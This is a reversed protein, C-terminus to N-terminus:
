IWGLLEATKDIIANRKRLVKSRSMFLEEAIEEWEYCGDKDWYRMQVIKQQEKDLQDYLKTIVETTRKLRQYLADNIFITARMATSDTITNSKGGGINTDAEQYPYLLEWERYRLRKKYENHNIWYDELKQIDHKSLM